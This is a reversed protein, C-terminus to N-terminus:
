SKIKLSLDSVEDEVDIEREIQHDATGPHSEPDDLSVNRGPYSQPHRGDERDGLNTNVPLSLRLDAVRCSQINVVDDAEEVCECGQCFKSDDVKNGLKDLSVFISLFFPLHLAIILTIINFFTM